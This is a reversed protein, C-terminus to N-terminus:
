GTRGGGSQEHGAGAEIKGIEEGLRARARRLRLSVANPSVELVTAIEAPGLQEWAWLRLLEADDDGLRALADLVVDDRPGGPDAEERPPDVTAVRAAVRQQRRASRRANALVHRAVGYAWPLAHEPLEDFRRWCVLLTESLVDDATEPDTRRLLFRRLPEVLEDRALAEFRARRVNPHEDAHEESAM